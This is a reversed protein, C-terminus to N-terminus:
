TVLLRGVVGAGGRGGGGGKKKEDLVNELTFMAKTCFVNWFFGKFQLLMEDWWNRVHAFNSNDNQIYPSIDVTFPSCKM